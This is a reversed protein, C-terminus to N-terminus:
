PDYSGREPGNSNSRKSQKKGTREMSHELKSKPKKLDFDDLCRVNISYMNPAARPNSFPHIGCHRCFWHKATKSGFQYLALADQGALLKFREPPVGSICPERRQVSPATANSPRPSTPEIEFRVQGCHCSGKYTRMIQTLPGLTTLRACQTPKDSRQRYQSSKPRSGRMCKLTWPDINSRPARRTRALITIAKGIKRHGSQGPCLVEVATRVSMGWSPTSVLPVFHVNMRVSAHRLHLLRYLSIAISVAQDSNM